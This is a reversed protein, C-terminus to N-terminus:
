PNMCFIKVKNEERCAVALEDGRVSIDELGEPLMNHCMEGLRQGSLNVSLMANKFLSFQQESTLNIIKKEYVTVFHMYLQPVSCVLLAM